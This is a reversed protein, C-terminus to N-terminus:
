DHLAEDVRRVCEAGDVAGGDPGSCHREVAVGTEGRILRCLPATPESEVALLRRASKLPGSAEEAPFPRLYRLPFVNVRRAGGANFHRMAHRMPGCACGCGVLTIEADSPGELLSPKLGRTLSRGKRDLKDASGRADALFMLGDHGPVARPSVGTETEAYRDFPAEASPGQASPGPAASAGPEDAPVAWLGRDIGADLRLSEVTQTEGALFRDLLLLVPAQFREALNFAEVTSDLVDTSGAPSLVACGAGACFRSGAAGLSAVVVPIEARQAFEMGEVASAADAVVALGRAGAHGAGIAAYVAAGADEAPRVIMGYRHARPALWRLTASSETGPGAALFKCGSALAGLALGQGGSLAPRRHDSRQLRLGSEPSAAGAREFGAKAASLEAALADSAAGKRADRLAEDLTGLDMGALRALAGLAALHWRDVEIKLESCALGIAAAHRRLGGAEIRVRDGDFLVGGTAEGAKERAAGQDFAVLFACGEGPVHVRDPSATMKFVVRGGMSPSESGSSACVHLGSRSFLRVLVEGMLGVGQRAPGLIWIGLNM